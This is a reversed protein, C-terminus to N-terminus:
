KVPVWGASEVLKQGEESLAFKIYDMALPQSLPGTMLILPRVLPYLNNLAAAGSPEVDNIAVTKIGDEMNGFGIYGIAAPEQKVIATVDGATVAIKASNSAEEQKALVLEDFAGRTGSSKERVVLIIPQDKGGLEKWNTIKGLYIDRLQEKKLSMIPNEKNLVIAIVDIAIQYQTIGQGEEATLVRSAMGIDVTGKHIAEIGIKTGGAAIDLAIQPNHNRFATGLKDALPQVTTSGAFTIEGVLPTGTPAVVTGPLGLCGTLYIGGILIFLIIKKM